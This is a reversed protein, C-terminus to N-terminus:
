RDSLAQNALPRALRAPRLTIDVVTDIDLPPLHAILDDVAQLVRGFRTEYVPLRALGTEQRLRMGTHLLQAASHLDGLQWSAEALAELTDAAAGREGASWRVQLSELLHTRAESVNGHDLALLGLQCLTYGRGVPDGLDEFLTRAEQYLTEATDLSGSLHHAEGLNALDTAIMQQNGLIRWTRLSESFRAIADPLDGKSVALAGLSHLATAEGGIDGLRQFVGLSERLTTEADTYDGELLRILGLDLLAGATGPADAADRWADLAEEHHSRATALDGRQRAIAGLGTLSRAIGKPDGTERRIALAEHHLQEARELDGQAEALLAAGSIAASCDQSPIDGRGAIASELLRRGETFYGRIWWFHALAAVLRVRKSLGDTGRAEYFAIAQRLNAHDAELRDLLDAQGTVDDWDATEALTLFWNAHAERLDEVEPLGHLQERAFERITELMTFRSDGGLIEEQRLLSKQVLSDLGDFLDLSLGGAASCVVEAADFM